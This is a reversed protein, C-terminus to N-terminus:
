SEAPPSDASWSGKMQGGTPECLHPFDLNCDTFPKRLSPDM